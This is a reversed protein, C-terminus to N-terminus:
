GLRIKTDSTFAYPPLVLNAPAPGKRIRGATDYHSGHCPCFWGDFDGRPDTVKQGLPVCGLHTCIGVVILWEPKKVRSEDSAPDRLDGLNVTKAEEIEKANRHRVFVPKGRWTVTIAQGEAVPALDVDISALALTDAAPNMSSIFPWAASAAGVVGVAGTALYLFDRRTSGDGSAAHGGTGPPHTTQAM